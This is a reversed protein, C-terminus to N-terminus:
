KRILQKDSICKIKLRYYYEKLYTKVNTFKFIKDSDWLNYLFEDNNNPNHLDINKHKQAWLAIYSKENCGEIVIYDKLKTDLWKIFHRIDYSENRKALYKRETYYKVTNVDREYYLQCFKDPTTYLTNFNDHEDYHYSCTKVVVHRCNYDCLHNICKKNTNHFCALNVCKTNLKHYYKKLFSKIETDNIFEFVSENNWLNYLYNDCQDNNHLEIGKHGDAWETIQNFGKKM